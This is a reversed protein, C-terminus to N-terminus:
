CRTGRREIRTQQDIEAALEVLTRATDLRAGHRSASAAPGDPAIRMMSPRHDSSGASNPADRSALISAM